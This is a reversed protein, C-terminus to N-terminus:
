YEEVFSKLGLKQILRKPKVYEPFGEFHRDIGVLADLGLMKVTALHALDREKIRGRWKEMEEKLEEEMIVRCYQSLFAIVDLAFERGHQREFYHKVEQIVKYSIFAELKGSAVLDLIISSNSQKREIGFIITSSDLFPRM